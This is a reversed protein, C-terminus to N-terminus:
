SIRRDEYELFSQNSDSQRSNQHSSHNMPRDPSYALALLGSFPFYWAPSVFGNAYFGMLVITIVTALFGIALTRDNENIKRFARISLILVVVALFIFSLTGFIGTEALQDFFDSHASIAMTGFREPVYTPLFAAFFKEYNGIGIGLLPHSKFISWSAQWFGFRADVTDQRSGGFMLELVNVSLLKSLLPVSLIFVIILTSLKVIRYWLKKTRLSVKRPQVTLFISTVMVIIIGLLISILLGRTFALFAAGFIIMCFILYRLNRKTNILLSFLLLSPFLYFARQSLLLEIKGLGSVETVFLTIDRFDALSQFSLQTVESNSVAYIIFVMAVITALIVYHHSFTRIQKRSQWLSIWFLLMAFNLSINIFRRASEFMYDSVAISLATTMLYALIAVVLIPKIRKLNYRLNSNGILFRIFLVALALLALFDTNAIEANYMEIPPILVINLALWVYALIMPKRVCILVFGSGVFVLLLTQISNPLLGVFAGGIVAMMLPLLIALFGVQNNARNKTLM